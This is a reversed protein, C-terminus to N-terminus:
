FCTIVSFWQITLHVKARGTGLLVWRLSVLSSLASLYISFESFVPFKFIQKEESIEIEAGGPLLKLAKKPVHPDWIKNAFYVGWAWSSTFMRCERATKSEMKPRYRKTGKYVTSGLAVNWLYLCKLLEHKM